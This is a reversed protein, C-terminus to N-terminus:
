PALAGAAALIELGGSRGLDLPPAVIEFRQGALELADTTRITRTLGDLRVWFSMIQRGDRGGADIHEGGNHPKVSARRVGIEAWDGPVTQYGDDVPDAQRLIRIRKTLRGARFTM